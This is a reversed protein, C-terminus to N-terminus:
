IPPSTMRGSRQVPVLAHLDFPCAQSVGVRAVAREHRSGVGDRLQGVLMRAGAVSLTRPQPPSSAVLLHFVDEEIRDLDIQWPIIGAGAAVRRFAALQAAAGIIALHHHLWDTHALRM